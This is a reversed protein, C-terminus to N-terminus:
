EDDDSTFSVVGEGELRGIKLGFRSLGREPQWTSRDRPFRHITFGFMRVAADEARYHPHLCALHARTEWGELGRAEEPQSWRNNPSGAPPRGLGFLAVFRQVERAEHAVPMFVGSLGGPAGGPMTRFNALVFASFHHRAMDTHHAAAEFAHQFESHWARLSTETVPRSASQRTCTVVSVLDVHDPPFAPFCGAFEHIARLPGPTYTDRGLNLVDACILPQIVVSFLTRNTPRLRILTLLNAETMNGAHLVSVESTAAVIKPHLCVRLQGHADVTFLAGVNFMGREPQASLWDSFSALDADPVNLARLGKVLDRLEPVAFLHTDDDPRPRLGVHVCGISLGRLEALTRVLDQSPLFAEPFVVLDFPEGQSPVIGDRTGMEPRILESLAANFTAAHQRPVYEDPEVVFVRFTRDRRVVEWELLAGKFPLAM